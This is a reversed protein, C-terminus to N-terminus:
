ECRSVCRLQVNLAAAYSTSGNVSIPSRGYPKLANHVLEVIRPTDFAEQAAEEIVAALTACHVAHDAIKGLITRANGKRTDTGLEGILDIPPQSCVPLRTGFPVWHSLTEPPM